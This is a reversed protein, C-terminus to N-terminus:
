RSREFGWILKHLQFGLKFPLKDQLINEALDKLQYGTMPCVVPQLYIDCKIASRNDLYFQKFWNYDEQSSIAVKLYHKRRLHKLNDMFFEKRAMASPPKIDCDVTVNTLGSVVSIDKTGSTEVIVKKGRMGLQLCLQKILQPQLLPEGGTLVVYKCYTINSLVKVLEEFSWTEGYAPDQAYKTDCWQCLIDCGSFRVFLMPTGLLSGEGMVSYFPKEALKILM